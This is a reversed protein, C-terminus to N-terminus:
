KLTQHNLGTIHRLHTNYARKMVGQKPKLIYFFNHTKDYLPMKVSEFLEVITKNPEVGKKKKPM